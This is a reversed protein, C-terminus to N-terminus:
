VFFFKYSRKTSRLVIIFENPVENRYASLMQDRTGWDGVTRSYIEYYKGITYGNSGTLTVVLPFSFFDVRSTNGLYEKNIITFELFESLVDQNPDTHKNLDTNLQIMKTKICTRFLLSAIHSDEDTKHYSIFEM